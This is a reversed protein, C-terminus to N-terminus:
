IWVRLGQNKDQSWTNTINLLLGFVFKPKNVLPKSYTRTVGLARKTSELQFQQKGRGPTIIPWHYWRLKTVCLDLTWVSVSVQYFAWELLCREPVEHWNIGQDCLANSFYTGRGQSHASYWFPWVPVHSWGWALNNFFTEVM